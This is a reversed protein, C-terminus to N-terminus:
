LIISLGGIECNIHLLMLLLLNQIVINYTETTATNFKAEGLLKAVIQKM